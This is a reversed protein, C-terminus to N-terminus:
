PNTPAMPHMGASTTRGIGGPVNPSSAPAGSKTCRMGSEASSRAGCRGSCRPSPASVRAERRLGVRDVEEERDEEQRRGQCRDEEGHTTEKSPLSPEIRTTVLYDCCTSQATCRCVLHLNPVVHARTLCLNQTTTLFNLPKVPGRSRDATWMKGGRDLRRSGTQASARM